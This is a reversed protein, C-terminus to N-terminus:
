DILQAARLDAIAALWRPQQRYETTAFARGRMRALRAPPQARLRQLARRPRANFRELAEYLSDSVLMPDPLLSAPVASREIALPEDQGYRVRHLRAVLSGPSLNLAM